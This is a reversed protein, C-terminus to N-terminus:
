FTFFLWRAYVSDCFYPMIGSSNSTLHVPINEWYIALIAPAYTRHITYNDWFEYLNLRHFTVGTLTIKWSMACSLLSLLLRKPKKNLIVNGIQCSEGKRFIPAYEILWDWTELLPAEISFPVPLYYRELFPLIIWNKWPSVCLHPLILDPVLKVHEEKFLLAPQRGPWFMRILSDMGRIGGRQFPGM